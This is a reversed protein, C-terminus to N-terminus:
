GSKSCRDVFGSTPPEIGRWYMVPRIQNYRRCISYKTNYFHHRSSLLFRNASIAGTARLCLMRRKLPHTRTRSGGPANAPPLYMPETAWDASAGSESEPHHLNSDQRFWKTLLDLSQPLEVPRARSESPRPQLNSDEGCHMSDSQYGLKASARSHSDREQLNSDQESCREKSFAIAAM